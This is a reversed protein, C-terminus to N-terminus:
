KRRMRMREIQEEVYQEVQGLSKELAARADSTQKMFDRYKKLAKHPNSEARIGAARAKWGPIPDKKLPLPYNEGLWKIYDVMSGENFGRELAFKKGEETFAVNWALTEVIAGDRSHKRPGATAIMHIALDQMKVVDDMHNALVSAIDAPSFPLMDGLERCAAQYKEIGNIHFRENGFFKKAREPLEMDPNYGIWRPAYGALFDCAVKFYFAAVGPLVAEHQIGIHYVENRFAHFIGISESVGEPLMGITSAFKLKSGFHQGLAAELAASHEYAKDRQSVSKLDRQKDKAVQHLTIEVANDILMLGFRANNADAKAVHEKALDIQEVINILFNMM